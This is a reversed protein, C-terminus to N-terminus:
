RRFLDGRRAEVQARLVGNEYKFPVREGDLLLRDPRKPLAWQVRYRRERAGAIELKRGGFGLLARKEKGAAVADRWTPGGRPLLELESGVRVFMPLEELPAPVTVERGGRIVKARELRTLREDASRWLDVWRGKPLYLTRETAGPAMVPAVLVSDGFMFEDERDVARPDEPTVLALQRMIPMGTRAYEREARLIEPLFRARLQAYRAWIPLVEPDTIQARRGSSPGLDFGNGQTRMVGSAFGVEIWRSLLEPTTQPEALAFFGGVDSGWRSVGSLGISLGQRVASELGDYGWGTTPDGGWVVPSGAASGTWGSRVYRILRGKGTAEHVGLHYDRVYANHGATGTTGDHAFADDPTYEGFDEMWGVHGDELAEATLSGYFEIAGPARFDIQGVDFIESGTYDYTYPQGSATKTLWGNAAAEAFRPHDTCIMPNFYTVTDLGAAHLRATREREQERRGVQDACPLYHLFTAAVSGLAGAARLQEITEAESPGDNGRQWWPGLASRKVPPQRGVQDSFRELVERPTPGAVVLLSLVPADVEAAWPRGLEHRSGEDNEVLVGYGRTSILWPIPFYSADNRTTFGPAPVFAQIVPEELDQYPGDVVRHEVSGETRVVADSREGFGLFSEAGPREFEARTTATGAPARFRVRIMGEGVRQLEPEIGTPATGALRLGSGPAGPQKLVLSAGEARAVLSGADVRAASAPAAAGLLGAV